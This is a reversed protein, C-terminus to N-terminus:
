GKHIVSRIRVRRTFLKPVKDAAAQATRAWVTVTTVFDPMWEQKPDPTVKSDEEFMVEVECVWQGYKYEAVQMTM